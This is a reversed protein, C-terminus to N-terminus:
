LIFIHPFNFCNIKLLCFIFANLNKIGVCITNPLSQMKFLASINLDTPVLASITVPFFEAFAFPEKASTVAASSLHPIPYTTKSRTSSFGVISVTKSILFSPSSSFTSKAIPMPPPEEISAAFAAAHKILFGSLPAFSNKAESIFVNIGIM